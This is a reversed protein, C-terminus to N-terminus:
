KSKGALAPSTKLLLAWFSIETSIIVSWCLHGYDPLTGFKQLSLGCLLLLLFILIIEYLKTLLYVWAPNMKKFTLTLAVSVAILILSFIHKLWAPVQDIYNGLMTNIQSYLIYAGFHTGIPTNHIDTNENWYPTPSVKNIGFKGVLVIKDTFLGDDFNNSGSYYLQVSHPSPYNIYDSELKRQNYQNFLSLDFYKVRLEPLSYLGDTIRIFYDNALVGSVHGYYVDGDFINIPRQISDRDDFASALIVTVSDRIKYKKYLNIETFDYDVAIVKPKFQSITSVLRGVLSDQNNYPPGSVLVIKDSPKAPDLLQYFENAYLNTIFYPEFRSYIQSHILSALSWSTV